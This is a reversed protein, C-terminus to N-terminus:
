YYQRTKRYLKSYVSFQSRTLERELKEFKAQRIASIEQRLIKPLHPLQDILELKAEEYEREIRYVILLKNQCLNVKKAFKIIKTAANSKTKLSGSSKERLWSPIYTTQERRFLGILKQFFSQEANNEISSLNEMEGRLCLCRALRQM